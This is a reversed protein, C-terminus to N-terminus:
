NFLEQMKGCAYTIAVTSIMFPFSWFGSFVNARFIDVVANGIEMSVSAFAMILQFTAILGIPWPSWYKEWYRSPSICYAPKKVNALNM